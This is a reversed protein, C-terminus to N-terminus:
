KLTSAGSSPPAAHGQRRARTSDPRHSARSSHPYLCLGCCRGWPSPICNVRQRLTVSWVTAPQLETSISTEKDGWLYFCEQRRRSLNYMLTYIASPIMRQRVDLESCKRKKGRSEKCKAVTVSVQSRYIVTIFRLVPATFVLLLLTWKPAMSKIKYGPAFESYDCYLSM